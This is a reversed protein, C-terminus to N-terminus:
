LITEWFSSRITITKKGQTSDHSQIINKICARHSGIINKICAKHFARHLLSNRCHWLKSWTHITVGFYSVSKWEIYISVIDSLFIQKVKFFINQFMVTNLLKLVGTLFCNLNLSCKSWYSCTTRFTCLATQVSRFQWQKIKNSLFDMIVLHLCHMHYLLYKTQLYNPHSLHWQDFSYKM